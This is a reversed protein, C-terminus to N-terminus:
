MLSSILMSGASHKFRSEMLCVESDREYAAALGTRFESGPGLQAFARADGERRGRRYRAVATEFADLAALLDQLSSFVRDPAVCAYVDWLADDSAGFLALLPDERHQRKAPPLPTQDSSVRKAAPQQQQQQQLLEQLQQDYRLRLQPDRLTEYATGVMQFMRSDGGPRDPHWRLASRKYARKIDADGADPAVDLVDYYSSQM